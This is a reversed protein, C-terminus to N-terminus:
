AAGHEPEPCEIVGSRCCRPSGTQLDDAGSGAEASVGTNSTIIDSQGVPASPLSKGTLRSDSDESGAIAVSPNLPAGGRNDLHDLHRPPLDNCTNKTLATLGM